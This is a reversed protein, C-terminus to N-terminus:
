PTASAHARVWQIFALIAGIVGVPTMTATLWKLLRIYFGHDELKACVEAMEKERAKHVSKSWDVLTDVKAATAAAQAHTEIILRRDESDM